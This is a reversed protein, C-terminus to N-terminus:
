AAGQLARVVAAAVNEPLDVKLTKGLLLRVMTGRRRAVVRGVLADVVGESAGSENAAGYRVSVLDGSTMTGQYAVKTCIGQYPRSFGM